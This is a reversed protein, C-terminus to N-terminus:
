IQLHEQGRMKKRLVLFFTKLVLYVIAMPFLVFRSLLATLLNKGNLVRNQSFRWRLHKVMVPFNERCAFYGDINENFIALSRYGSFLAMVKLPRYSPENTGAFITLDFRKGRLTTVLSLQEPISDAYSSYITEGKFWPFGPEFRKVITWQVHPLWESCHRAIREEFRESCSLVILGSKFSSIDPARSLFVSSLGRM